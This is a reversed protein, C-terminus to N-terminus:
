DKVSTKEHLSQNQIAQGLTYDFSLVKNLKVYVNVVFMGDTM